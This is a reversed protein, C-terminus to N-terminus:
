GSLVSHLRDRALHGTAMKYGANLMMPCSKPLDLGSPVLGHVPGSAIYERVLSIGVLVRLISDHDINRLTDLCDEVHDDIQAPKENRYIGM